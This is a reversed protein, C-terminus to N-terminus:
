PTVRGVKGTNYETFWVNGDPGSTIGDVYAGPTPVALESVTGGPTVCGIQNADPETFWVNGDPGAVIISPQSGATPLEYELINGSTSIRGVKNGTAETFWMNGDPGEAIGLVGAGSTPVPFETLQGSTTVRGIANNSADTLWLDGDPGAALTTASPIALPFQTVAGSPTMRSVVVGAASVGSQVFWLNGDPGAAITYGLTGGPAFDAFTGDVAVRGIDSSAVDVYWLDGDAGVALAYAGVHTGIPVTTVAGSTTIRGLVPSSANFLGFWLNGDPGAVIATANATLGLPFETVVGHPSQPFDLGVTASGGDGPPRMEFSVSVPAGASVTATVPDSVWTPAASAAQACAVGFATASFVDSGLPLANLDFVTDTEPALDFQRTVHAGGGTVQIQACLANGPALRVAATATGTLEPPAGSSPTSSCAMATACLSLCSITRKM